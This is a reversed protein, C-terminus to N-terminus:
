RMWDGTPRFRLQLRPCVGLQAKAKVDEVAVNGGRQIPLRGHRADGTGGQQNRSVRCLTRNYGCLAGGGELSEQWLGLHGMNRVGTMADATFLKRMIHLYDTGEQGCTTALERPM